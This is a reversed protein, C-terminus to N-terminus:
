VVAQLEVNRLGVVLVDDRDVAAHLIEAAPESRGCLLWEDMTVVIACSENSRVEPALSAGARMVDRLVHM